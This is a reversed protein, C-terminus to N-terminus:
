ILAHRRAADIIKAFNVAIIKRDAFDQRILMAELLPRHSDRLEELSSFDGLYFVAGGSMGVLGTANRKQGESGVLYKNTGLFIHSDTRAAWEGLAPAKSQGSSLHLLARVSAQRAGMHIDKNKSNPYGYAAYMRHGGSGWRARSIRDMPIFPVDGLSNRFEDSVRCIAFDFHDQSGENGSSTRYFTGRLPVSERESGISLNFTESQDIVHAATALLHVGDVEILTSTGL